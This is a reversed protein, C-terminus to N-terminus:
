IPTTMTTTTITTTMTAFPKIIQSKTLKTSDECQFCDETRLVEAKSPGEISNLIPWYKQLCDRDRNLSLHYQDQIESKEEFIILCM